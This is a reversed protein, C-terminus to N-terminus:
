NDGVVKIPMQRQIQRVRVVKFYRPLVNQNLRYIQLKKLAEVNGAEGFSATQDNPNGSGFLEQIM